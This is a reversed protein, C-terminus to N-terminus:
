RSRCGLQSPCRRLLSASLSPRVSVTPLMWFAPWTGSVTGAPVQAEMAVRVAGGDIFVGDADRPPEIQGAVPHRKTTVRASTYASGQFPESAARLVLGCTGDGLQKIAANEARRRAHSRHTQVLIGHMRCLAQAIRLETCRVCRLQRRLWRLSCHMASVICCARHAAQTSCPRTRSRLAGPLRLSDNCYSNCKCCTCATRTAPQCLAVRPAGAALMGTQTTSRGACLIASHSAAAEIVHLSQPHTLQVLCAASAAPNLCLHTRVYENNGWLEPGPNLPDSMDRTGIDFTWTGLDLGGASRTAAQAPLCTRFDQVWITTFAAEAMTSAMCVLCVALRRNSTKADGM